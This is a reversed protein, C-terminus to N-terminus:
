QARINQLQRLCATLCKQCKDEVDPENLHSERTLVALIYPRFIITRCAFYRLRLVTKVPNSSPVHDLSFQIPEPLVDYWETLQRDLELVVKNFGRSSTNLERGNDKPAYLSHSVRNLLVRLAIEAQFYWLDETAVPNEGEYQFPKPYRAHGEFAVIGSHPLAMEALLDSNPSNTALEPGPLSGDFEGKL